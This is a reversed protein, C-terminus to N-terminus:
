RQEERSNAKAEHGAGATPTPRVFRADQDVGDPCNLASRVEYQPARGVTLSLRGLYEGLLGLFVLVAGFCILQSAMLSSWGDQTVVGRLREIVIVLAWIVGVVALVGGAALAIRLPVISLGLISSWLRVLAKLTYGSTGVEREFHQVPTSTVRKTARFVLGEIYPYPGTYEIMHDRVYDRMVFFSSAYVDKPQGTLVRSTWEAFRSGLRRFWSERLGADGYDAFVVDWGEYIKDLLRLVQSPHTQMDDDMLLILQGTTEHLGAMIAGHQGFNRILDIGKVCPDGECLSRIQAFTGDPSCDNVLVFEYAYGARVLEDRTLRVVKAITQESRYCPIVVSVTLPAGPTASVPRVDSM